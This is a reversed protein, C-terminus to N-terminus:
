LSDDLDGTGPHSMQPYQVVLLDDLCWEQTLTITAHCLVTTLPPRDPFGIGTM